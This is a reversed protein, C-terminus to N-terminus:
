IHLVHVHNIIDCGINNLYKLRSILVGKGYGQPWNDCTIEGFTISAASLFNLMHCHHFLLLFAQICFLIYITFKRSLM